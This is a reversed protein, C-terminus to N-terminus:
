LTTTTTKEKATERRIYIQRADIQITELVCFVSVILLLRGISTADFGSL